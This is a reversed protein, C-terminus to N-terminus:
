QVSMCQVHPTRLRHFCNYILESKSGAFICSDLSQKTERWRAANGNSRHYTVNSSCASLSLLLNELDDWYSIVFKLM